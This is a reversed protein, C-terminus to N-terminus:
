LDARARIIEAAAVVDAAEKAQVVAYAAIACHVECQKCTHSVVGPDTQVPEGCWCAGAAVHAREQPTQNVPQAKRLAWESWLADHDSQTTM